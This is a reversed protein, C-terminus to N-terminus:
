NIIGTFAPGAGLGGIQRLPVPERHLIFIAELEFGVGYDIWAGAPGSGSARWRRLRCEVLVIDDLAIETADVKALDDRNRLGNEADYVETFPVANRVGRRGPTNMFRRVYFGTDADPEAESHADTM